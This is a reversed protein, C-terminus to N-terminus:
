EGLKDLRADLYERFEPLTLKNLASEVNGLLVRKDRESLRKAKALRQLEHLSRCASNVTEAEAFWDDLKSKAYPKRQETILKEFEAGDNLNLKERVAGRRRELEAEFTKLQAAVKERRADDLPLTKAALFLEALAADREASGAPAAEIKALLQDALSQASESPMVWDFKINGRGSKEDRSFTKGGFEAKLSVSQDNKLDLTYAGSPWTLTSGGTSATIKVGGVGEGIDYFGNGNQDVYVVGGARRQVNQREGFVQTISAKSESHGIVGVGIEKLDWMLLIKRHGRDKQMGGPGDGHDVIFGVHGDWAGLADRYVNEARAFGAYNAAKCRKSFNKGTFGPKKDDQEHTLENEIMYQCHGRAAAILERNFVLPPVAKADKLEALFM